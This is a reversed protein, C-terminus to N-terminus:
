VVYYPNGLRRLGYLLSKVPSTPWVIPIECAVYAVCYPNWLRRLGYLLCKVLSTAVYYPNWLRILGCLLSKGLSTPWIILIECAIYAVYYPNLLRRSGCLPSKVPSTPWIIPIECAVYAMYYPNWGHRVGCLPSKVPSTPWIYYPNWVRCLGYNDLIRTSDLVLPQASAGAASWASPRLWHTRNSIKQYDRALHKTSENPNEAVCFKIAGRIRRLWTYVKRAFKDADDVCAYACAPACVCVCLWSRM